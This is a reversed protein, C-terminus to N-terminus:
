VHRCAAEFRLTAVLHGTEVLPACANEARRSPAAPAPLDRGTSPTFCNRNGTDLFSEVALNEAFIISHEPLELHYYTIAKRRLQTINAHNALVKAPVLVGALYVAHDPSLLLERAPQGPGFANAAIRIPQVAAPSKHSSLRIHRRGLWIIPADEGTSTIIQDGISLDEIAIEGHPTLIRTGAAFCPIRDTARETEGDHDTISFDAAALAGAISLQAGPAIALTGPAIISLTDALNYPLANLDIADGACFNELVAAPLTPSDIVLTANPASFDAMGTLSSGPSLILMGGAIGPNDTVANQSVTQTGFITSAAATSGADIYQNGGSSVTTAYATGGSLIQM